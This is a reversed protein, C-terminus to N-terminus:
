KENLRKLIRIDDGILCLIDFEGLIRSEVRESYIKHLDGPEINTSLITKCPLRTNKASRYNLLTLLEAYKAASPSETGIDDIILLEANLIYNYANNEVDAAEPKYKSRYIIDFMAPAPLYLVTNGKKLVELAICKSLFTKGVGTPGSFYLNPCDKEEFRCVFDLCKELIRLAHERPIINDENPTDSYYNENFFEFGTKGDSNLNSVDYFREVLLQRYCHCPDVGPTGESDVTFGTDNCHPCTYVIKLYNEPMGNSVLLNKKKDVLLNLENEFTIASDPELKQRIANLSYSIGLEKIIQDIEKIEPIKKYVLERKADRAIIANERRQQYERKLDQWNTNM